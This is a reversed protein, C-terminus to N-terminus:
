TLFLKPIVIFNKCFICQIWLYLCVILYYLLMLFSIMPASPITSVLSVSWAGTHFSWWAYYLPAQIKSLVMSLKWVVICDHGLLTLFHTNLEVAARCMWLPLSARSRREWMCRWLNTRGQLWYLSWSPSLQSSAVVTRLDLGLWDRWDKPVVQSGWAAKIVLFM